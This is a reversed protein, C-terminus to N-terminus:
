DPQINTWILQGLAFDASAQFDLMLHINRKEKEVVLNELSSNNDTLWVLNDKPTIIVHNTGSLGPESILEIQTGELFTKKYELNYPLNGNTRQYWADYCRKAFPSAICVMPTDYYTDSVKNLVAKFQDGANAETFAAPNAAINAAPIEGNGGALEILTVLGNMTNEPNTGASNLRGKFVAKLHLNEKVKEVIKAFLFAEFPMTDTKIRGGDILGLYSKWLNQILTPSFTLDAKCPRVKGIRAKFTGANTPNFTDKGGPQLLDGMVLETMVVEDNTNITTGFYRQFSLDSLLIASLIQKQYTRAYSSLSSPLESLVLSM